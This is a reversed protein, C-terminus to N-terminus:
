AELRELADGFREGEKWKKLLDVAQTDLVSGLQASFRQMINIVMWDGDLLTLEIERPHSKAPDWVILWVHEEPNGPDPMLYVDYNEIRGIVPTPTKEPSSGPYPYPHRPTLEIM